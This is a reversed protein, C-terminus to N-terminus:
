ERNNFVSLYAPSGGLEWFYGGRSRSVFVYNCHACTVDRYTPHQTPFAADRHGCYPCTAYNSKTKIRQGPSKLSIEIETGSGLEWHDRYSLAKQSDHLRPDFWNLDLIRDEKSSTDSFKGHLTLKFTNYNSVASLPVQVRTNPWVVIIVTFTVRMPMMVQHWMFFSIMNALMIRFFVPLDLSMAMALMVSCALPVRIEGTVQTSTFHQFVVMADRAVTYVDVEPSPPRYTSLDTSNGPGFPLGSTTCSSPNQEQHDRIALLQTSIVALEEDVFGLRQSVEERVQTVEVLIQMTTWRDEANIDRHLLASAERIDKNSLFAEGVNRLVRRFKGRLPKTVLAFVNLVNVFIRTYLEHNWTSSIDLRERISFRELFDSVDTLLAALEGKRDQYNKITKLFIGFAVFLGKGGPVQAAASVEAFIENFLLLVDLVKGLAVHLKGDESRYTDTLM